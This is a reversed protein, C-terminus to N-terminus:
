KKTSSPPAKKFISASCKQDAPRPSVFDKLLAAEQYNHLLYRYLHPSPADKQPGSSTEPCRSVVVYSITNDRLESLVEDEHPPILKDLARVPISKGTLFYVIAKPPFVLLSNNESNDKQAAHLPEMSSDTVAYEYLGYEDVFTSIKVQPADQADKLLPLLYDPLAEEKSSEQKKIYQTAFAISKLWDKSELTYVRNSGVQFLQQKQKHRALVAHQQCLLALPILIFFPFLFKRLAAHNKTGWDLHLYFAAALLPSVLLLGDMDKRIGLM